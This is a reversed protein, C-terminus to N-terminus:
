NPQDPKPKCDRSKEDDVFKLSESGLNNVSALYSAIPSVVQLWGPEACGSLVLALGAVVLIRTV